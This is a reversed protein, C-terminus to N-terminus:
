YVKGIIMDESFNGFLVPSQTENDPRPYARTKKYVYYYLEKITISNDNNTDANGSMAQIIYYTFVGHGLSPSEISTEHDESSTMVAINISKDSKLRTTSKAKSIAKQIHTSKSKKLSGSHCADAFLLKTNCQATRFIEKLESFYLLKENSYRSFDYPIFAGNTGHGSFFFIVRDNSQARRFLKKSYYIINNKTAKDETMLYINEKPVSGGKSSMLFKCFAEADDVTYNLDGDDYDMNKYDEIAIIVAYTNNYAYLQYSFISILLCLIIKTKKM